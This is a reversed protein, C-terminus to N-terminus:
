KKIRYYILGVLMLIILVFIVLETTNRGNCNSDSNFKEISDFDNTIPNHKLKPIPIPIPIPNSNLNPQVVDPVCPNGGAVGAGCIYRPTSILPNIQNCTGDSVGSVHMNSNLGYLIQNTMPDYITNQKQAYKSITKCSNDYGNDNKSDINSFYQTKKIDDNQVLYDTNM